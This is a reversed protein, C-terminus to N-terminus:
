INGICTKHSHIDAVEISCAAVILCSIGMSVHSAAGSYVENVYHRTSYDWRSRISEMEGPINAHHKHQNQQITKNSLFSYEYAMLIKSHKTYAVPTGTKSSKGRVKYSLMSINMLCIKNNEFAFIMLLIDLSPWRAREAEKTDTLVIAM